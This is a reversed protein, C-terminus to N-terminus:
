LKNQRITKLKGKKLAYLMPTIYHLLNFSFEMGIYSLIDLPNTELRVGIGYKVLMGHFIKIRIYEM